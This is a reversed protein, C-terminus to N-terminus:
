VGGDSDDDEDVAGRTARPAANKEIDDDSEVEVDDESSSGHSAVTMELGAGDDTMPLQLTM